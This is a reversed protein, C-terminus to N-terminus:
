GGSVERAINEVLDRTRARERAEPSRANRRGERRSIGRQGHERKANKRRWGHKSSVAGPGVGDRSTIDTVGDTREDDRRRGRSRRGKGGREREEGAEGRAIIM